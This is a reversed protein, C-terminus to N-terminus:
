FKQPSKNEWTNKNPPILPFTQRYVAAARNYKQLQTHYEILRQRYQSKHTQKTKVNFFTTINLVIATLLQAQHEVDARVKKKTESEADLKNQFHQINKEQVQQKLKVTEESPPANEKNKEKEEKIIAAFDAAPNGGKTFNTGQRILEAISNFFNGIGSDVAPLGGTFGAVPSFGGGTGTGGTAENVVTQVNQPLNNIFQGFAEALKDTLPHMLDLMKGFDNRALIEKFQDFAHLGLDLENFKENSM